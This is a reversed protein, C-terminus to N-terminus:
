RCGRLIAVERPCLLERLVAVPVYGEFLCVVVTDLGKVPRELGRVAAVVVPTPSFSIMQEMQSDRPM